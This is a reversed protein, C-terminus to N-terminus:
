EYQRILPTSADKSSQQNTEQNNKVIGITWICLKAMVMFHSCSGIVGPTHHNADCHSQRTTTSSNMTQSVHNMMIIVRARARINGDL